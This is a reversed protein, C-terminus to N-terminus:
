RTVLAGSDKAWVPTLAAHGAEANANQSFGAPNDGESAPDAEARWGPIEAVVRTTITSGALVERGTCFQQQSTISGAMVCGFAKFKLQNSMKGAIM